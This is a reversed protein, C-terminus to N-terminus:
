GQGARGAAFMPATNSNAPGIRAGPALLAPAPRYALPGPFVVPLRVQEKRQKFGAHGATRM